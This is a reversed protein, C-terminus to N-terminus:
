TQQSALMAEAAVLNGKLAYRERADARATRAEAERGSLELVAALAAYADASLNVDDLLAAREVATTAEALGADGDGRLALLRARATRLRVQWPIGHADGDIDALVAEAASDRGQALLAEAMLPALEEELGSGALVDMGRRAEAEAAGPDGALLELEAGITTLGALPMRLGLEEYIARARRYADRAEAFRGLMAELEALSALVNAQTAPRGEAESLLSRCREAADAAPTPGYLLGTCLSDIARTEEYADRAARAYEVARASPDVSAGYRGERREAFAMRRWALALASDDGMETFVEVAREAVARLDDGLDLVLRFAARDLRALWTARVDDAREADAIALDLMALARENEGIEWLGRGLGRRVEGRSTSGDTLLADARELLAIAAPIDDRAAARRGARALLSAAEEGLVRAREAAGGLERLARCAQELHHGALDDASPSRAPDALLRRALTEHLSARTSKPIRAYASDRVLGHAFRYRDDGLQGPVPRILGARTLGILTSTVHAADDPAALEALVRPEFRRGIVSAHELLALQRHPLQDLRAALVAEITPPIPLSGPGRDSAVAALQELFLPNGEAVALIEDRASEPAGVGALLERADDEHLPGLEITESGSPGPRRDLLEPRGLRILAVPAGTVFAALYDILDHFTPEAWHADDVVLVVLRDRANLEVFRRVAWFIEDTTFTASSLGGAAELREALLQENEEGALARTVAEPGGANRLIEVLPRYTTGGYAVCRGTLVTADGSLGSVLEHVLRSKGVGAAGVVTAVVARRETEARRVAERLRALEEVRDVLPSDLRREIGPADLDVAVVRWAPVADRKGKADVDPLPELTAASAVLARTAAGVVIEDAGAAAELRQATNVVDGTVLSQRLSPDGTMAPGTAIGTRAALQVGLDGEARENLEEMGRRLSFAARVARLADDEHADPLGFVAMVADGIFKEVTGGHELLTREALDFWESQLRRLSEPDLLEGIETSGVWDCFLVTVTKRVEM